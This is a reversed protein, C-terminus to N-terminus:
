ALSKTCIEYMNPSPKADLIRALEAKIMERRPADYLRWETFPKALRSAAIANKEDMELLMDAVWRYGSGDAAHFGPVNGRAFGGVLAYFKNPTKGDYVDSAALRRVNELPTKAGDVGRAVGAALSLYTCSVNADDKWRALFADFAEKRAVSATPHRSLASMAAVTETMNAARAAADAAVGGDPGGHGIVGLHRAAFAALSRRATQTENVEYSADRAAEAACTEYADILESECHTAFAVDLARRAAYAALPNMPATEAVIAAVGPFSLAEEVWARDVKGRAADAVVIKCAEAFRSWAPDSTILALAAADSADSAVFAAGEPDDDGVLARTARVVVGRALTQAAEWRNFTDSDNALAFLLHDPSAPPCMELKVPASFGRLVSPVPPESVDAFVFTAKKADLRLVLTGADGESAVAASKGVGGIEDVVTVRSPDLALDSGSTPSLLGVAIPILQPAKPADGGDDPTVPLIQELTLSFTRAAEDYSPECRVTPTGAQSYWNKLRSIDVGGNADSMADFFDDVTAASGDHREFYLDMGRRFGSEGLLTHYMRIVEAGKEYVTLTYFNDIKMYSAPRVPHAMPSADEAFQADRLHRVDGIRKVARSSVDASFEQDRFVTLGEKLSLQFWDRCTVRNGTWNHFYEHGIVGEIRAFATDTASEPTALVLRSNFLNLSKNEMAGMNFDDVAVINFLDLDYELGSRDEDWRMARKLSAMAFDCRDINKAEAYIRLDVVRGSKTEFTDELVALDGAVLAFLYCPKRWPDVWTTMHRGGALDCRAVLNGNSLLVPYKTKDARIKTTFTSMVDPRDPFYTILRFGEAECQTCFNGSSKYLGSLELNDQPKFRTVVGLTFSGAPVKSPSITMRTDEANKSLDYDSPSLPKDDVYVGLLDVFSERGDLVLPAGESGPKPAFASTATVVTYEEELDFELTM